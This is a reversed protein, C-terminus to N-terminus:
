CIASRTTLRLAQKTEAPDHRDADSHQCFRRTHAHTRIGAADRLIPGSVAAESCSCCSGTVGGGGRPETRSPERPGGVRRKKKGRGQLRM